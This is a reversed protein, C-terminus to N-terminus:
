TGEEAVEFNHNPFELVGVENCTRRDALLIETVVLAMDLVILSLITIQCPRSTIVQVLDYRFRSSQTLAFYSLFFFNYEM